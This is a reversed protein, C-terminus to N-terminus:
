AIMIMEIVNFAEEVTEGDLILGAENRFPVFLNMLSYYYSEREEEKLPNFINHNPLVPKTLKRYKQEGNKDTGDYTVWKQFIPSIAGDTPKSNHMYAHHAFSEEMKTKTEHKYLCTRAKETSFFGNKM